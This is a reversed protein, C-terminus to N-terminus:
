KCPSVPKSKCALNGQLDHIAMSNEYLYEGALVIKHVKFVKGTEVILQMDSFRGSEYFSEFNKCNKFPHEPVLFKGENGKILRLARSKLKM